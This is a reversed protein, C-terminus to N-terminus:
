KKARDPNTAVYKGEPPNLETSGLPNDEGDLAKERAERGPALADDIKNQERKTAETSKNKEEVDIAQPSADQGIMETVVGSAPASLYKGLDPIQELLEDQIKQNPKKGAGYILESARAGALVREGGSWTNIINDFAKQQIENM